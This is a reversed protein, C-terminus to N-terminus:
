FLSATPPLRFVSLLFSAGPLFCLLPKGCAPGLTIEYIMSELHRPSCFVEIVIMNNSTGNRM